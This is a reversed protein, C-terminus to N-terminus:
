TLLRGEIRAHDRAHGEGVGLDGPDAESLVFGLGLADLDLLAQERPRGRAAGDGVAAVLAIGLQQEVGLRMADDAAADDARM